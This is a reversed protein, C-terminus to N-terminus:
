FCNHDASLYKVLRCGLGPPDSLCNTAQDRDSFYIEKRRIALERVKVHIENFLLGVANADQAPM